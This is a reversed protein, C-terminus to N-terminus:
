PREHEQQDRQRGQEDGRAEDAAAFQTCAAPADIIQLPAVGPEFPLGQLVRLAFAPQEFGTRDDHERELGRRRVPQAVRSRVQLARAATRRQLWGEALREGRQQVGVVGLRERGARCLREGLRFLAHLALHPERVFGAVPAPVQQLQVGVAGCTIARRQHAAVQDADLRQLLGLRLRGRTAAIELREHLLHARALAEQLAQLLEALLQLERVALGFGTVHDRAGSGLQEAAPVARQREGISLARHRHGRAPARKGLRADSAFGVAPRQATAAQVAAAGTRHWALARRYAGMERRLSARQRVTQLVGDAHRQRAQAPAWSRQVEDRAVHEVVLLHTGGAPAGLRDGFRQLQREAVQVHSQRQALLRHAVPEGAQVVSAVEVVRQAALERARLAAESLRVRASSSM